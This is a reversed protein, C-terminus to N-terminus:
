QQTPQPAGGAQARSVLEPNKALVQVAAKYKAEDAMTRNAKPMKKMQDVIIQATRVQEMKQAMEPDGGMSGETGPQLQQQQDQSMQMQQTQTEAQQLLM